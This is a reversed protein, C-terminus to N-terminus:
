ENIQLFLKFDEPSRIKNTLDTPNCDINGDERVNENM